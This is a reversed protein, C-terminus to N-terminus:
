AQAKLYLGLSSNIKLLYNKAHTSLIVNSHLNHYSKKLQNYTSKWSNIFKEIICPPVFCMAIISEIITSAIDGLDSPDCPKLASSASYIDFKYRSTINKIHEIIISDTM